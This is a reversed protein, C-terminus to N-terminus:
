TGLTSPAIVGALVNGSSCTVCKDTTGELKTFSCDKLKPYTSLDKCGNNTSDNIFTGFCWVCKGSKDYVGCQAPRL